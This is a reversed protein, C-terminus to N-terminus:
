RPTETGCAKDIMAEIPSSARPAPHDWQAEQERIFGQIRQWSKDYATKWKEWARVSRFTIIRKKSDCLQVNYRRPPDGRILAPLNAARIVGHLKTASALTMKM